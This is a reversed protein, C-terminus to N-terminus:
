GMSIGAPEALHDDRPYVNKRTLIKTQVNIQKLQVIVLSQCVM